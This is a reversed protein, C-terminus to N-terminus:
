LKPTFRSLYYIGLKKAIVEVKDVVVEFGDEGFLKHEKSEFENYYMQQVNDILIQISRSKNNVISNKLIKM